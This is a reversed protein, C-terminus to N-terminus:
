STGQGTYGQLVSDYGLVDNMVSRITLTHQMALLQWLPFLIDVFQNRLRCVLHYIQRSLGM